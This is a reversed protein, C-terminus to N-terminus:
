FFKPWHYRKNTLGYNPSFNNRHCYSCEINNSNTRGCDSCTYNKIKLDAKGEIAVLVGVINSKTIPKRINESGCDTSRTRNDGLVWYENEGLTVPGNTDKETTVTVTFNKYEVPEFVDNKKVSLLGDKIIFTENPLAIVRKIKKSATKRLVGDATYDKNYGTSNPYYTSIIDFRKIHNIASKHGDVIGFDVSGDIENDKNLTPAMSPGDVYIPEYYYSHFVFAGVFCLAFALLLYGTLSLVAKFKKNKMRRM